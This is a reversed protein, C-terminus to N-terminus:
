NLEIIKDVNRISSKRHAIIIVTLKGRLNDLAEQIKKESEDDLASTAEDLILLEPNSLLARAIALRQREGGSLKVGRDGIITDLGDPLAKVLELAAAQDLAHWLKKETLDNNFWSLNSRITEHFLFTEQTVYALSKRWALRADGVLEEDDCYVSGSNPMLLGAIIDVLTTKGVGSPGVIAVIQNRPIVLSINDLIQQNEGEYAFSVNDLRIKDVFKLIKLNKNGSHEQNNKCDSFLKEFDKFSSIKFLLQQFIKQLVIVNSLLRAFVLLLLLLIEFPVKLWMYSVYFILSFAIVAGVVQIFKTLENNRTLNFNQVDLQEGMIGLKDAHYKESSYSKIMKLSVLQETIAQFFSKYDLVQIKGYEFAGKNFSFTLLSLTLLCGVALLTMKWSIILSVVFYLFSLIFRSLFQLFEQGAAGMNQVQVTLINTYDSMKNKTIFQWTTKLLSQYLRDRNHCTFRKRLKATKLLVTYQLYAMASIIFIYLLLIFILEIEINLNGTVDKLAVFIQTESQNLGGIGLLNLLPILLLLGVGATIGQLITLLLTKSIERPSFQYFSYFATKIDLFKKFVIRDRM